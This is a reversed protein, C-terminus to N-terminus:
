IQDLRGTLKAIVTVLETSDVPKRLHTQFGARLAKVRDEARAFATLAVAPIQGGNEPTLTRIRHIFSYGDEDPMGIDSLLIDPKLEQLLRFGDFASPVTTAHAGCKELLVSLFQRTDEQDDVVLIHLGELNPLTDIGTGLNSSPKSRKELIRTSTESNSAAMPLYPLKVTFVAGRGEGESTAEASGGHLEALHRVIALGLGLGGHLRTSTSDAQRFRDFIYPLVDPTIGQGSDSIIIAIQSDTHQLEVQVRGGRPTFKIANALLNWVIQRLRAPDGSTYNVADGIIRNLQINKARAAPMVSDIAEEIIVSLDVSQIDLRMKGTIVRSVDLIDEVLQAQARANREITSLGRANEEPDLETSQLINTWGIIATLPTRLEHSLTALFEDKVRNATEADHRSRQERALLQEREFDVQKRQTIDRAIKSIGVIRGHSDKIPSLTISVHIREGSKHLRVTEIHDIGEGRKQRAIIRPEEEAREPPILMLIPKGIAEEATYGFLREAGYNWSTIIGDLTKSVIADHSSDVIAAFVALAQEVQRRETVERLSIVVGVRRGNIRQPVVYCEFIRGDRMEIIDISEEEPESIHRHSLARFAEPNKVLGAEYEVLEQRNKRELLEPPFQWITAFKTNYAVIRGDLDMAMVGDAMSELTANLLALYKDLETVQVEHPAVSSFPEEEAGRGLSSVSASTQVVADRLSGLDMKDAETTSADLVANQDVTQESM